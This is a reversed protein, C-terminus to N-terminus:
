NVKIEAVESQAGQTVKLRLREIFQYCSPTNIQAWDHSFEGRTNSNTCQVPNNNSYDVVFQDVGTMFTRNIMNTRLDRSILNKNEDLSIESIDVQYVFDNQSYYNQFISGPNFTLDAQQDYNPSTGDLISNTSYKIYSNGPSNTVVEVVKALDCRQIRSIVHYDGPKTFQSIGTLFTGPLLLRVFKADVPDFQAGNPLAFSLGTQAVVYLTDSTKQSGSGSSNPNLYYGPGLSNFNTGPVHFGLNSFSKTGNFRSRTHLFFEAARNSFVLKDTTRKQQNSNSSFTHMGYIMLIVSLGLGAVIEILSFGNDKNLNM